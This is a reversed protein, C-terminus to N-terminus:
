KWVAANQLAGALHQRCQAIHLATQLATQLAIQLAIQLDGAL